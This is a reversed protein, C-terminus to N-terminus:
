TGAEADPAPIAYPLDAPVLETGGPRCGLLESCYQLGVVALLQLGQPSDAATVVQAALSDDSYLTDGAQLALGAPGLYRLMRRKIQGLHQTRAVIEQGLYCGKTFSVAALLDLNLMQPVWLGVTQPHILPEGDEICARHWDDPTTQSIANLAGELAPRSGALLIRRPSAIMMTLGAAAAAASTWSPDPEADLLGAIVFGDGRIALSVEARLVFSSLRAIAAPTLAAPMILLIGDACAALRMIELVRGSRNCAATLLGPHRELGLLDNTLQGQLFSRADRGTVAIAALSPLVTWRTPPM